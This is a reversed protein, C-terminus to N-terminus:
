AFGLSHKVSLTRFVYEGGLLLNKMSPGASHTSLQIGHSGLGSAFAGKRHLITKGQKRFGEPEVMAESAWTLDVSKVRYGEKEAYRLIFKGAPINYYASDRSTLWIRHELAQSQVNYIEVATQPMHRFLIRSRVRELRTLVPDSKGVVDFDYSPNQQETLGDIEELRTSARAYDFAELLTVERNSDYDALGKLGNILHHSFVAGKYDESEQAQEGSSSSSLLITGRSELEDQKLIERDEYLVGGKRRLFDGSECADLIVIKLDCELSDLLDGVERRSVIKGRMHLGEASGHGSYYLLVSTQSGTRRLELVRGRIERLTLRVRELTPNVLLYLKDKSYSGLERFVGAMSVADRSAYKLTRERPLGEDVGIFLALNEVKASVSGALAIAVATWRLFKM